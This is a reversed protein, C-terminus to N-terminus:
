CENVEFRGGFEKVDLQGDATRFGTGVTGRKVERVWAMVGLGIGRM